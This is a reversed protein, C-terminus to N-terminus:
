FAGAARPSRPTACVTSCHGVVRPQEGPRWAVVTDLARQGDYGGVVYVTGAIVAVAADSTATPLSGVQSVRESAPDYSLIHDYSSFQGGGFVYVRGGLLAAQADHQAEPLVGGRQVGRADLLSVTATSTDSANLGGLVAVRGSPLAVGAADQLAFPLAM